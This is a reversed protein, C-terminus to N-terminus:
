MALGFTSEAGCGDLKTICRSRPGRFKLKKKRSLRKELDKVRESLSSIATLQQQGSKILKEMMERLRENEEMLKRNSEVADNEEVHLQENETSEQQEVNCVEGEKSSLGAESAGEPHNINTNNQEASCIDNGAAASEADCSNSHENILGTEDMNQSEPPEEIVSDAIGSSEHAEYNTPMNGICAGSIPFEREDPSESSEIIDAKFNEQQKDRSEDPEFTAGETKIDVEEETGFKYELNCNDLSGGKGTEKTELDVGSVQLDSAEHIEMTQRNEEGTIGYLSEQVTPLVTVAEEVQKSYDGSTSDSEVAPQHMKDAGCIDDVLGQPLETLEDTLSDHDHTGARDAERASDDQPSPVESSQERIIAEHDEKAISSENNEFKVGSNDDEDETTPGQAPEVEEDISREAGKTETKEPSAAEDIPIAEPFEAREPNSVGDNQNQLDDLNINNSNESLMVDEIKSSADEQDHKMVPEQGPPKESNENMISDLQEQLSM